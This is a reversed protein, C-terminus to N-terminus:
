SMFLILNPSSGTHKMGSEIGTYIKLKKFDRKKRVIQARKRM